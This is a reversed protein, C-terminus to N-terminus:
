AQEWGIRRHLRALPPPAWWNSRGALRMAGPLLVSRILTADVIVAVAMGVGLMQLYVVGSTAYAAFSLALIAAAATVLPASREIGTVISGAVDGSRDFEEKIRSMVFVEYDMSLGYAIAFM